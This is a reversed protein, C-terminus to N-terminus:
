SSFDWCEGGSADGCVVEERERNGRTKLIGGFDKAGCNRGSADHTLSVEGWARKVIMLFLFIYKRLRKLWLDNKFKLYM